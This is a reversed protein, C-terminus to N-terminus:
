VNLAPMSGRKLRIGGMLALAIAYGLAGSPVAMWVSAPRLAMLLGTMLLGALFPRWLRYPSVVRFGDARACAFAALMRVTETAVTAAAAGALSYRPILILNLALNLAAAGATLRFIRGERNCSMLPAIAVDRLVSVPIAWVLIGLVGGSALFDTGFILHIIATALITGGIAIPLTVAFVQATATHYLRHQHEPTARLRTLTPLLSLGYASGVNSMFSILAYAAAYYGVATTGDFVRLFILDSNYIMLGVLSAGVMPAARPLIRRLIDFDVRPRLSYGRAILWALLVIAALADGIFQAVPIRTLDDPQRVITVVLLVMLVEGGTRVVAVLSTRELGLYIWRSSAGVALLTLGYLALVTGEPQAFVFLGLLGLVGSLVLAVLVRATLISPAVAQLRGPDAAIERIGVGLEMGGDAIRSLYLVIATAFGIIGYYEAGLTRAIYITAIFAVIRAIVEGSGLALFNRAVLREPGGTLPDAASGPLPPLGGAMEPEAARGQAPDPM